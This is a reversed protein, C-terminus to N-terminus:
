RKVVVNVEINILRSTTAADDLAVTVEAVKSRGAIVRGIEVIEGYLTSPLANSTIEAKLGKELKLVDGEYIEAVVTMRTLDAIQLLGGAANQGVRGTVDIITGAVPARLTTASLAREAITVGMAARERVIRNSLELQELRGIASDLELEAAQIKQVQTDTQQQQDGTIREVEGEALKLALQAKGIQFERAELEQVSVASGGLSKYRELRTEALALNAQTEKVRLQQLSLTIASMSKIADLQAKDRAIQQETSQIKLRQLEIDKQAVKEAEELDLRALKCDAEAATRNAFIMLDAGAEVRQNREVLIKEVTTAGSGSLTIIGGAPQITGFAGIKEAGAIAVGLLVYVAVVGAVTQQRLIILM